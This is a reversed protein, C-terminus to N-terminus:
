RTSAFNLAGKRLEYFFGIFLILMFLIFIKYGFFNLFPITVCWPFLFVIELDFIVFLIGILYFSINFLHRSDEFPQFGCEYTSLKEFTMQIKATSLTYSLTLFLFSILSAIFLGLHIPIYEYLV